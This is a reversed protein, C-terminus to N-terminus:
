ERNSSFSGILWDWATSILFSIGTTVVLILVGAFVFLASAV